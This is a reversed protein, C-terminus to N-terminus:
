PQEELIAQLGCTCSFYGYVYPDDSLVCEHKHRIYPKIESLQAEALELKRQLRNCKLIWSEEKSM